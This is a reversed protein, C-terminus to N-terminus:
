LRYKSRLEVSAPAYPAWIMDREARLRAAANMHTLTAKLCTRLDNKIFNMSSFARENDVSGHPMVMVASVVRHFLPNEEKFTPDALCRCWFSQWSELRRNDGM